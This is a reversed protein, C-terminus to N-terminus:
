KEKRLRELEIGALNEERPMWDVTFPLGLGWVKERLRKLRPEKVKYNGKIQNVILQSDSILHLDKLGKLKSFELAFYVAWWEGENSTVKAGEIADRTFSDGTEPIVVCIKTTSGDVFITTM